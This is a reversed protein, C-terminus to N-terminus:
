NEFLIREGLGDKASQEVSIVSLPNSDLLQDVSGENLAVVQFQRNVFHCRRQGPKEKFLLGELFPSRVEFIDTPYSHPLVIITQGLAIV